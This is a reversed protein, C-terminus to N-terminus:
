EYELFLIDLLFESYLKDHLKIVNGHGQDPTLFVHGFTVIKELDADKLDKCVDKLLFLIGEYNSM